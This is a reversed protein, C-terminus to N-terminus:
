FKLSKTRKITFSHWLNLRTLVFIKYSEGGYFLSLPLSPATLWHPLFSSVKKWQSVLSIQSKDNISILASEGSELSIIVLQAGNSNLSAPTTSKALGLSKKEFNPTLKELGSAYVM